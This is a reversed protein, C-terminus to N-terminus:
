FRIPEWWIKTLEREEATKLFKQLLESDAKLKSYLTCVMYPQPQVEAGKVSLSKGLFGKSAFLMPIEPMGTMICPEVGFIDTAMIVVADNYPKMGIYHTKAERELRQQVREMTNNFKENATTM